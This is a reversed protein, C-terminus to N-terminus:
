TTFIVLIITERELIFKSALFNFICLLVGKDYNGIITILIIAWLYFVHGDMCGQTSVWTIAGVRYIYYQCHKMIVFYQHKKNKHTGLPEWYYLVICLHIKTNGVGMKNISHSKSNLILHRITHNFSLESISTVIINLKIISTSIEEFLAVCNIALM